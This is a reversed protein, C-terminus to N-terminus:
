HNVFAEVYCVNDFEIRTSYVGAPIPRSFVYRLERTSNPSLQLNAGASWTDDCSGGSCVTFVNPPVDGEWICNITSCDVTQDTKNQIDYRIEFLKAESGQEGFPWVLEIKTIMTTAVANANQLVIFMSYFDKNTKEYYTMGQLLTPYTPSDYCRPIPTSTPTSTDTPTATPQGTNTPTFTQTPTPTLSATPTDTPTNTNTPTFESTATHTPTQTPTDTITPTPSFFNPPVPTPGPTGVIDVAKIITRATTSSIPIAPLNVIAALPQFTTSVTVVIRDALDVRETPPCSTSFVTTGDDYQIQIDDDEIGAFSGVKKAAARIGDCDSYRFASGVQGVAAGYRAAERSASTVSSYVFLLRGFEIIGFVVLLLIPLVLAFEVMGQASEKKYSGAQRNPRM